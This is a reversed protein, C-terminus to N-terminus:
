CRPAPAFGPERGSSIATRSLGSKAQRATTLSTQITISTNSSRTRTAARMNSRSSFWLGIVSSHIRSTGASITFAIARLVFGMGEGEAM